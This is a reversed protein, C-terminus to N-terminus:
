DGVEPLVRVGWRQCCGLMEGRAASCRASPVGESLRGEAGVEPLLAGQLLCEKMRVVRLVGVRAASCGASPM